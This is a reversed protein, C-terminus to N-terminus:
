PAPEATPSPSFEDITLTIRVENLLAEIRAPFGTDAFLTVTIDGGEAAFHVITLPVSGATDSSVSSLRDRTLSFLGFLSPIGGLAGDPIPSSFGETELHPRSSDAARFTLPHDESFFTTIETADATMRVTIPYATGDIEARGTLSFPAKLWATYDTKALSADCGCLSVILLSLLVLFVATHKM